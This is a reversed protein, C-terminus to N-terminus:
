VWGPGGFLGVDGCPGVDLGDSVVEGLVEEKGEVGEFGGPDPYAFEVLEGSCVEVDWLGPESDGLAFGACGAAPDVEGWCEGVLDCCGPGWVLVGRPAAQERRQVFSCDTGRDAFGAFVGVCRVVVGVVESVALDAEGEFLAEGWGLDGLLCAVGALWDGEVGVAVDDGLGVVVVGRRPFARVGYPCLGLWGGVGFRASVTRVCGGGM